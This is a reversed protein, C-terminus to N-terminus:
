PRISPAIHPEWSEVEMMQLYNKKFYDRLMKSYQDAPEVDIIRSLEQGSKTLAVGHLRFEKGHVGASTAALIWCKGQFCFPIRLVEQADVFTLGITSQIDYWSNYESTILGHENLINLKGYELGYEKLSNGDKYDGM